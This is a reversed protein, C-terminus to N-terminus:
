EPVVPPADNATTANRRADLVRRLADLSARFRVHGQVNKLLVDIREAGVAVGVRLNLGRAQADDTEVSTSAFFDAETIRREAINLDFDEDADGRTARQLDANTTPANAPQTTSTAPQTATTTARRGRTPMQAACALACAVVFAVSMCPHSLSSAVRMM